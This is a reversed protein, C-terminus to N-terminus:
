RSDKSAGLARFALLHLVLALPVMFGPIYSFPFQGIALNPVEAHILQLPGPATLVGRAVVNLLSMLGVVNFVWAVRRGGPGRTSLWAALPAAFAVIFEVNGGALTMLRPVLGAEWLGHLVVEVGVRFTQLGVILWLPLAAALVRGGQGRAIVVVVGLVAPLALWVIGPPRLTPDRMLGMFGIAGAYGLWCLLSLSGITAARRPLCRWMVALLVVTLGATYAGFGTQLTSVGVVSM